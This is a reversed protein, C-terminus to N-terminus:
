SPLLNQMKSPVLCFELFKLMKCEMMGLYNANQIKSSFVGKVDKVFEAISFALFILSERLYIALLGSCM